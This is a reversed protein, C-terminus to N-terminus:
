LRHIISSSERSSRIDATARGASLYQLENFDGIIIYVTYTQRRVDNYMNKYVIKETHNSYICEM